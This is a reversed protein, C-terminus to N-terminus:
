GILAVASGECGNTPYVGFVTDSPAVDLIHDIPQMSLSEELRKLKLVRDEIQKQRGASNKRGVVVGGNDDAIFTPTDPAPSDPV